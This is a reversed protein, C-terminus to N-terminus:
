HSGVLIKCMGCSRGMGSKGGDEKQGSLLLSLHGPVVGSFLLWAQTILRTIAGRREFLALSQLVHNITVPACHCGPTLPTTRTCM